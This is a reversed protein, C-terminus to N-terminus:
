LIDSSPTETRVRIDQNNKCHLYTPSVGQHRIDHFKKQDNSLNTTGPKYFGKFHKQQERDRLWHFCMDM